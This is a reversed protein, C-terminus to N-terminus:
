ATTARPQLSALDGEVDAVRWFRAGNRVLQIPRPLYEGLVLRDISSESVNLRAAVQARTWLAPPPLEKTQKLRPM